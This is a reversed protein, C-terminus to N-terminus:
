SAGPSPSALPMSASGFWTMLPAFSSSDPGVVVVWTDETPFTWTILPQPKGNTDQVTLCEFVQGARPPFWKSHMPATGEGGKAPPCDGGADASSFGIVKNFSQWAAEFHAQSDLQYAHVETGKPLGPDSCFLAAVRGTMDWSYPPPDNQCQTAPDDIDGPLLQALPAVGAALV